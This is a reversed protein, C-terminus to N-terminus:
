MELAGRGLAGGGGVEGVMNGRRKKVATTWLMLCLDLVGNQWWIRAAQQCHNSQQTAKNDHQNSYNEIRRQLRARRRLRERHAARPLCATLDSWQLATGHYLVRGRCRACFILLLVDISLGM